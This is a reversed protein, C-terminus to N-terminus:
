FVGVYRAAGVLGLARGISDLANGSVRGPPVYVVDGPQLTINQTLDGQYIKDFPIIRRRTGEPSPRLVAVERVAARDRPGGALNIADALTLIGREPIAYDGPKVVAQIVKVQNTNRSVVVFDGEQLLFDPKPGGEKLAGYVDLVRTQEGRQVTVRTLASADTPGGARAIIEPVGDGTKIEYAGPRAVEGNVFATRAREQTVSVLDGDQLRVNQKLDRGDFLALADIELSIQRGNHTRIVSIRASAAPVSLGGARSIAELVTTAALPLRLPGPKNVGGTVQVRLIQPESLLVVDGTQLAVDAAPDSIARAYDVPLVERGRRVSAVIQDSSVTLGGAQAVAEILTADNELSYNGPNRVFGDVAIKLPPVGEILLLDNPQLAVNQPGTKANEAALVDVEIRQSKRLLFVRTNQTRQKLGGAAVIADLLRPARRLEYVDPKQVDGSITIRQPERQTFTLVDGSILRYNFPSSPNASLAAVEVPQPNYGTRALVGIVEELRGPVGGAAAIAETVRWGPKVAYVGPRAVGTGLVFIQRVRQERLSVTVEPRNLEANLAKEIARALQIPTKGAAMIEGALPLNIKGSAPIAIRELSLEPHRLVTIALVDDAGLQLNQTSNSITPAPAAFASPLLLGLWVLCIAAIKTFCTM